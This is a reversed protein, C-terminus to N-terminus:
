ILKKQIKGYLNGCPFGEFYQDNRCTLVVNATDAGSIALVIGGPLRMHRTECPSIGCKYESEKKTWKELFYMDKNRSAAYEAYEEQTLVRKALTERITRPREIDIGVPSESIAAACAGNTHTLSMYLGDKRMPKRDAYVYTDPPEFNADRMRLAGILALEAGISQAKASANTIRGTKERRAESLLREWNKREMGATPLVCCVYIM